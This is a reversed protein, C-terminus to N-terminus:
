CLAWFSLVPSLWIVTAVLGAVLIGDLVITAMAGLSMRLWGIDNRLAQLLDGPSLKQFFLASFGLLHRILREMLNLELAKILRQQVVQNDFRCWVSAIITALLLTVAILISTKRGLADVISRAFRSGEGLLGSFTNQVLFITVVSLGARGLATAAFRALLPRQTVLLTGMYRAAPLYKLISAM